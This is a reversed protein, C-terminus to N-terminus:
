EQRNATKVEHTYTGIPYITIAISIKLRSLRNILSAPLRYTLHNPESGSEFAIDAVRELCRDLLTKSSESLREIADCFENITQEPMFNLESGTGSVSVRYKGDVWQNLQTVISDGLEQVISDLNETSEFEFDTTVYQIKM